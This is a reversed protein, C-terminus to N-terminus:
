LICLEDKLPAYMVQIPASFFASIPMHMPNNIALAQELVARKTQGLIHLFIFRSRALRRKTLSIRVFPASKPHTLLVDPACEDLGDALEASCPFLSATHGDEGMGLVVVDFEPLTALDHRVKALSAELELSEDYLRIFSADKAEHQLLYRQVLQENRAPNEAPVCREDTLCFTVQKWPFTSQALAIFLSVPTKGGSVVCYAHGRHTIADQLIAMIHQAFHHNLEDETNFQRLNM